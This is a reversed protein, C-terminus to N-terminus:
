KWELTPNEILALNVIRFANLVYAPWAGPGVGGAIEWEATDVLIFGVEMQGMFSSSKLIGGYTNYIWIESTLGGARIGDPRGLVIWM